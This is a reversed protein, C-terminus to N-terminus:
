MGRIKISSNTTRLRVNLRRGSTAYNMSEGKVYTRDGVAGYLPMECTVRGGSTEAEVHFGIGEPVLFRVGGNTTYAEISREGDWFLNNCGILTDELKIGTNTTKMRLHVADLAATKIGSNTTILSLNHAHIDEATIKSNTTELHIDGGTIARAKIGGNKTHAVLKDCKIEEIHIPDNKNTLEIDGATINAIHIKANKTAAILQKIHAQPVRCLVQVSRFEKENFLLSVVGNEDSFHVHADPYRADYACQIQVIDGDYGFIEIKENKGHLELQTLGQLVPGSDFRVTNKNHSFNGGFFDSINVDIDMDRISDTVTEVVDGVWSFLGDTWGSERRHDYDYEHHGQTDQSHTGSHSHPPRNPNSQKHDVPGSQSGVSPPAEQGQNMFALAEEATIEGAQLRQLIQLKDPM